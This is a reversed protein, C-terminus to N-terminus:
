GGWVDTKGAGANNTELNTITGLTKKVGVQVYARLGGSTVHAADTLTQATALEAWGQVWCDAAEISIGRAQAGTPSLKVNMNTWKAKEGVLRVGNTLSGALDVTTGPMQDVHVGAPVSLDGSEATDGFVLIRDGAAAAALADAVTAFSGPGKKVFKTYGGYESPIAWPLPSGGAVVRYKLTSSPSLGTWDLYFNTKDFNEVLGDRSINRFKEATVDWEQVEYGRIDDADNLGHPVTTEANSDFWASTFTRSSSALLKTGPLYIAQIEVYKGGTIDYADASAKVETESKHVIVSAPDVANKNTGDFYYALVAQPEGSLNHNFTQIGSGSTVQESWTEAYPFFAALTDHVRPPKPIATATAWSTVTQPLLIQNLLVYRFPNVRTLDAKDLLKLAGEVIGYVRRLNDSLTVEDSTAELDVVLALLKASAGNLTGLAALGSAALINDLNVTLDGGYDTSAGGSGSYTALVRGDDLPLYGGKLTCGTASFATIRFTRDAGGGSGSGSGFRRIMTGDPTKNEIVSTLSGATKWRGADDTSQLVVYGAHTGDLMGFLPGVDIAQAASLSAVIDSYRCDFSGDAKRTFVGVVFEGAAAAVPHSYTLGQRTLTIGAVESTVAQYDLSGDPSDVLVDDIPTITKAAGDGVEVVSARFYLKSDPTAAAYLRLPQDLHQDIKSNVVENTTRAPAGIVPLPAQQVDQWNQGRTVTM